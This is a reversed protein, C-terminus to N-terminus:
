FDEFTVNASYSTTKRFIQFSLISQYFCYKQKNM